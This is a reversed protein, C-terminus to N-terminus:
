SKAIKERKNNQPTFIRLFIFYDAILINVFLDNNKCFFWFDINHYFWHGTESFDGDFVSIPFDHDFNFTQIWFGQVQIQLHRIRDRICMETTMITTHCIKRNLNTEELRSKGICFAPWWLLNNIFYLCPCRFESSWLLCYSYLRWAM